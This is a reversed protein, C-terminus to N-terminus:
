ADILPIKKALHLLPQRGWRRPRTLRGAGSKAHVEFREVRLANNLRMCGFGQVSVAKNRVQM